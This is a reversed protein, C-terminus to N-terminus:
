FYFLFEKFEMQEQDEPRFKFYDREMLASWWFQEFSKAQLFLFM